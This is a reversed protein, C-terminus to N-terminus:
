KQNQRTMNSKVFDLTGDTRRSFRLIVGEDNPADIAPDVTMIIKNIEEATIRMPM